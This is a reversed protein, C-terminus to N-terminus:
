LFLTYVDMLMKIHKYVQKVSKKNYLDLGQRDIPVLM